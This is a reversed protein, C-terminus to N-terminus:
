AVCPRFIKKLCSIVPQLKEELQADQPQLAVEGDRLIAAGSRGTKMERPLWTELRGTAYVGVVAGIVGLAAIGRVAKM